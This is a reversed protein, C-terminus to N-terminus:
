VYKIELKLKIQKMTHLISKLFKLVNEMYHTNKIHKKKLEEEIIELMSTYSSFLLIKHGGKTAEEVIEMCQELKSSEGGYDKIFLSPHCCIQRLRTLAALVKMQSAGYGNEQILNAVDEKVNSLYSLYIEQQEEQMESELVTVEKEPLETLVEKKTRRLVFPEILTRLKELSKGDEDKVLRQYYGDVKLAGWYDGSFIANQVEEKRKEPSYSSPCSWYLMSSANVWDIGDIYGKM